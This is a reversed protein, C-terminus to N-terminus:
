APKLIDALCGLVYDPRISATTLDAPSTHGTLVLLASYGARQAGLIDTELNDGVMAIRGGPPLTEAAARFLWPEPKGVAVPQRGAMYAIGAAIAGAGPWLGDPMPFAADSASLLFHRAQRAARGALKLQHYDFDWWGGVAVVEAAEAAPGDLLRLGSAAFYEKMGPSGVVHATLGELREQARLYELMAQAVPVIEAPPTPLGIRALREAYFQATNTPDNTVFRVQRGRRRLDLVTEVSGPIPEGGLYMVGDLDLLLHDFRDVLPSATPRRPAPPQPL